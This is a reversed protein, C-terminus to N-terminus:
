RVEIRMRREKGDRLFTVDFHDSSELSQRNAELDRAPIGNVKVIVDKARFGMKEVASGRDIQFLQYGQLQGDKGVRSKIAVTSLVIDNKKKVEDVFQRPVIVTNGKRVIKRELQAIQDKKAGDITARGNAEAQVGAKDSNPLSAARAPGPLAWILCLAVLFSLSLYKYFAIM